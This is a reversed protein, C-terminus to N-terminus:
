QSYSADFVVQDNWWLREFFMRAMDFRTEKQRSSLTKEAIDGINCNGDIDDFLLKEPANVLMYLNRYTHTRNILVGAAGHPLREEVCITDSM